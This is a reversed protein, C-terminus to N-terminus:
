KTIGIARAVRVFKVLDRRGDEGMELMEQVPRAHEPCAYVLGIPPVDFRAWGAARSYMAHEMAETKECACCRVIPGKDMRM